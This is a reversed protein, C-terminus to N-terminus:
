TNTSVLNKSFTFARITLTNFLAVKFISGKWWTWAKKNYTKNKYLIASLKFHWIYSCGSLVHLWFIGLSELTLLITFQPINMKISMWSDTLKNKYPVLIFTSYHSGQLCSFHMRYINHKLFHEFIFFIHTCHLLQWKRPLSFICLFQSHYKLRQNKVVIVQRPPWRHELSAM